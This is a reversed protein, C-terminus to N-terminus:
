IIFLGIVCLVITIICFTWVIRTESWGCLEFHHHLPAMKFIRKGHSYKFYVVQIIDSLAEAVCVGAVVILVIPMQIIISVVGLAGGLALSGTDGMFVKAPNINYVLFGLCCGALIASFYLITTNQYIIGYVAFFVMIITMVGAALGDLGDTINVVNTTSILVLMVFPIFFMGLDVYQRLIPIYTETGIKLIYQVYYAFGGSIILLLLMKQWALLGTSRKKVVKIYDDAFGVLAFLVIAALMPLVTGAMGDYRHALLLIIITFPILFIIGGMSPTGAKKLHSEPGDDRINQGVKLKKLMPLALIGWVVTTAFSALLLIIQIPIERM